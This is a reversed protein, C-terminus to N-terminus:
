AKIALKICSETGTCELTTHPDGGLAERVDKAITEIPRDKVNLTADAGLSRALALKTDIID